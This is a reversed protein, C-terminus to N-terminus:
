PNELLKGEETVFWTKDNATVRWFPRYPSSSIVGKQWVLEAKIRAPKKRKNIFAGRPLTKKVLAIAERRSIKPFKLPTKVWSVEKFSLDNGELVLVASTLAEKGKTKSLPMLYYFKTQDDLMRVKLPRRALSDNTASVFNKDKLLHPDILKKWDFRKYRVPFTPAKDDDESDNDIEADSAALSKLQDHFKNRFRKAINIPAENKKEPPEAVAVFKGAYSDETTLPLYYTSQLEAATKYSNEGIGSIAPDNLWFGYVTFAGTQWPNLNANPDESASAGRVVMWNNYGGFAPILVSCNPVPTNPVEYDMWHAVDRMADTINDKAIVSFYYASPKFHLLITRVDNPTLERTQGAAVYNYLEDQTLIADQHIYDLTMKCSAAASYYSKEELYWPVPLILTWSQTGAIDLTLRNGLPDYTYNNQIEEDSLSQTLHNLKDYTYNFETSEVPLATKLIIFDNDNAAEGQHGTTDQAIIKIRAHPTTLEEPVQWEYSQISENLGTAIVTPYTLGSDTSLKIEQSIAGTDDSSNWSITYTSGPEIIEGARPQVLSVLPNALDVTSCAVDGHSLIFRYPGIGVTGSSIVALYFTGSSAFIHNISGLSATLQTGNTDYLLLYCSSSPVGIAASCVTIADNTNATFKYINFQTVFELSGETVVEYDVNDAYAPNNMTLEYTGTGDRSNDTVLLYFSGTTTVKTNFMPWTTFEGVKAGSSDYLEFNLDFNGSTPTLPTFVVYVIDNATATFKYTVIKSFSDVNGSATQGASLTITGVPNNLCQISLNYNGTSTNNYDRVSFKFTGTASLTADLSGSNSYTILNGQPDLLELYPNLNGTAKAFRITVVDGSAGSFTFEDKEGAVAISGSITQGYSTATQSFASCVVFSSIIIFIFNLISIKFIKNM